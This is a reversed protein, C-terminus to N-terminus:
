FPTHEMPQDDLAPVHVPGRMVAPDATVGAWHKLTETAKDRDAAPLKEINSGHNGGPVVYLASDKGQNPHFPESGWPDNQGNVFLIQSSESRVWHDIDRMANKDFTVPIDEPLYASPGQDNNHRLLDDLHPHKVAPWGLETAAQYYYPVYHDLGQDSYSNWGVTADVFSWIDDTPANAAPVKGCDQLLSYQWFSWATDLVTGELAQDVGGPLRTFTLHKDNAFQEYRKVMEDRRKLVERQLESLANRCEPTGVKAFFDNYAQDEDNNVDNPAVYAVTGDIDKPFFRHHYTATMGGKSAGTTIWKQHYLGQKLAEIVRHEDNAGQWIGAQSWDAPNPRSPEFFRYEMDVQNADVLKTPERRGPKDPLYYGTTYLVTPRSVDRHLLTLRQQFTPGQPNRHDVPQTYTLDFFRFGPETPREGVVTMGPIAKLSDLVDDKTSPAAAASAGIGGLLTCVAAAAAIVGRLKM